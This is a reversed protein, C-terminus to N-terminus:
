NKISDNQFVIKSTDKVIFTTDSSIIEGNHYHQSVNMEFVKEYNDLKKYGEWFCITLSCLLVVAIIGFFEFFNLCYNKRNKNEAELVVICVTIFVALLIIIFIM